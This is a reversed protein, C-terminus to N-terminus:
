NVQVDCVEVLSFSELEPLLKRISTALEHITQGSPILWSGPHLERGPLTPTAARILMARAAPYLLVFVNTM